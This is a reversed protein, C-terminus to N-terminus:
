VVEDSYVRVRFKHYPGPLILCPLRGTRELLPQKPTCTAVVVHGVHRAAAGPEHNAAVSTVVDVVFFDHEGTGPTDHVDESDGIRFTQPGLVIRDHLLHFIAETGAVATGLSLGVNVLRAARGSSIVRARGWLRRRPAWVM